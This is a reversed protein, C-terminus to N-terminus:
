FERNIFYSFSKNRIQAIEISYNKLLEVMFDIRSDFSNPIQQNFQEKTLDNTDKFPKIKLQRQKKEALGALYWSEIEKIM